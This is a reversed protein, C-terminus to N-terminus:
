GLWVKRVGADRAWDLNERMMAEGLGAGRFERVIHIGVSATHRSKPSQGRTVLCGGVIRRGSDAVLYQGDVGDWRGVFREEEEVTMALRETLIFRKEAGVENVSEMLSEADAAEARRVKVARGDRLKVETPLV